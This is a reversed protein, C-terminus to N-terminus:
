RVSEEGLLYVYRDLGASRASAALARDATVLVCEREIALALYFCDYASHGLRDALALAAADLEHASAYRAPLARAELRKLDAQGSTLDRRRVRAHLASVIEYLLLDPAHVEGAGALTVRAEVTHREPLMAALVVSADAVIRVAREGAAARRPVQAPM